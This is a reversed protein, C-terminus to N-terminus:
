SQWWTSKKVVKQVDEKPQTGKLTTKFGLYFQTKMFFDQVDEQYNQEKSKRKKPAAQNVLDWFKSVTREQEKQLKQFFRNFKPNAGFKTKFSKHWVKLSSTTKM